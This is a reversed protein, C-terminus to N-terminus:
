AVAEEIQIASRYVRELLNELSLVLVPPANAQRVVARATEYGAQTVLAPPDELCSVDVSRVDLVSDVVLGLALGDIAVVMLRTRNGPTVPQGRLVRGLDVVPIVADRLDVVGQILAPAQPLPTIPQWRVVARVSSVDLAYQGGGVEFCTLTVFNEALAQM